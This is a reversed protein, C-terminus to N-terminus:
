HSLPRPLPMTFGKFIEGDVQLDKSLRDLDYDEPLVLSDGVFGKQPLSIDKPCDALNLEGGVHLNEGISSLKPCASLDCDREVRLDSGITELIPCGDLILSDEVRVNDGVSVLDPNESCILREMIHLGSPISPVPFDSGIMLTNSVVSNIPMEGKVLLSRAHAPSMEKEVKHGKSM